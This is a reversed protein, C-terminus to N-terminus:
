AHGEGYYEWSPLLREVAKRVKYRGATLLREQPAAPLEKEDLNYGPELRPFRGGANLERQASLSNIPFQDNTMPFQDNTM